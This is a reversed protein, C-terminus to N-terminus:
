DVGPSCMVHEGFSRDKVVVSVLVDGGAAFGEVHRSAGGQDGDNAASGNREVSGVPVYETEGVAQM